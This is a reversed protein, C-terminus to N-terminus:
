FCDKDEPFVTVYSKIKVKGSCDTTVGGGGGTCQAAFFSLEEESLKQGKCAKSRLQDCSAGSPPIPMPPANNTATQGWAVDSCFFIALIALIFLPVGL